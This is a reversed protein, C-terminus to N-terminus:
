RVPRSPPFLPPTVDRILHELQRQDSTGTKDFIAALQTKITEGSVGHSLAIDKRSKGEAVDGVVRKEGATLGFLAAIAEIAPPPTHGAVSIFIGAAADNAFRAEPDRRALPLVHAVAPAATLALPVNIGASRYM